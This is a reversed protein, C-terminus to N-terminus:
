ECVTVAVPPLPCYVQDTIRPDRGSARVNFGAVPTIPPWGLPGAVALKAIWTVSVLPAVAALANVRVMLGARSMVVVDGNGAAM